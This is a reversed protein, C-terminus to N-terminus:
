IGGLTISYYNGNYEFVVGVFRYNPDPSPLETLAITNMIANAEARSIYISHSFDEVPVGTSWDCHFKSCISQYRTYESELTNMLNGIAVHNSVLENATPIPANNAMQPRELFRHVVLEVTTSSGSVWSASFTM